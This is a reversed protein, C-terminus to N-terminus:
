VEFVPFLTKYLFKRNNKSLIQKNPDGKLARNLAKLKGEKKVFQDRESCFSAGELLTDKNPSKITVYTQHTSIGGHRQLTENKHQVIVQLEDYTNEGIKIPEQFKLWM